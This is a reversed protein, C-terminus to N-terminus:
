EPGILKSVAPDKRAFDKFSETTPQVASLDRTVQEVERKGGQTKVLFLTGKALDYEKGDLRCTVTRGDTTQLEWDVRRGDRAAAFGHKKIVYVNGAFNVNEGSGGAGVQIDCCIMVAPGAQWRYFVMTGNGIAATLGAPPPPQRTSCGSVLALGVVVLGPIRVTWIKFHGM